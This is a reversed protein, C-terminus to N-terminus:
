SSKNSLLASNIADNLKEASEDILSLLGCAINADENDNICDLWMNLIAKASNNLTLSSEACVLLKFFVERETNM